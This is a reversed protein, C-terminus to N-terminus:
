IKYRMVTHVPEFEEKLYLDYAKSNQKLVILEIYDVEKDKAWSKVADILQKGIGKKRYEEEVFIDAFNLYRHPIFCEYPLTEEIFLAVMGVLQNNDVAIIFEWDEREIVEELFTKDPIVDAFYYPQYDHMAKFQKQYLLQLQPLDEYTAKRIIM